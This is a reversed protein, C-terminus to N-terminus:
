IEIITKNFGDNRTFNKLIKYRSFPKLSHLIRNEICNKIM